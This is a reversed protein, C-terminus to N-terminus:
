VLDGRFRVVPEEDRPAAGPSHLSREGLRSGQPVRRRVADADAPRSRDQRRRHAARWCTRSSPRARSASAPIRAGAGAGADRAGALAAPAIRRSTKPRPGPRRRTCRRGPRQRRRLAARNTLCYYMVLGLSFLDARADVTQGRAQEPSMFNANGKVMGAQTQSVRRNAKVIGFDFLKVEGQASVMINGASVDRHVIGLRHGERDRERTPTPWRRCRRTPSTTAGHARSLTAAHARLLAAILRVLDRGVIYEQAM